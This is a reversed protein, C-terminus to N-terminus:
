LRFLETHGSKAWFAPVEIYGGDEDAGEIWAQLGRPTVPLFEPKIFQELRAQVETENM